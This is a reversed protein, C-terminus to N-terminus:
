VLFLFDCTFISSYIKVKVEILHMNRLTWLIDLRLNDNQRVAQRCLILVILVKVQFFLNAFQVCEEKGEHFNFNLLLFSEKTSWFHPSFLDLSILSMRQSHANFILRVIWVNSVVSIVEDFNWNRNYDLISKIAPFQLIFYITPPYGRSLM